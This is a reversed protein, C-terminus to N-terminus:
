FNLCNNLQVKSNLLPYIYGLGNQISFYNEKQPIRYDNWWNLSSFNYACNLILWKCFDWYDGAYHLTLGSAKWDSPVPNASWCPEFSQSWYQKLVVVEFHHVTWFLLHMRCIGSLLNSCGSSEVSSHNSSYTPFVWLFLLAYDCPHQLCMFKYPSISYIGQDRQNNELCKM